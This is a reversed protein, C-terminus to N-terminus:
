SDVPIGAPVLVPLPPVVEQERRSRQGHDNFEFIRRMGRSGGGLLKRLNGDDLPVPSPPPPVGATSASVCYGMKAVGGGGGGGGTPM